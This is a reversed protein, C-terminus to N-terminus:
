KESEIIYIYGDTAMHVTGMIDTRYINIGRKQLRNIVIEDPFSYRNNEGLSIVADSPTVKDLYEASTSTSSGHHGIKLVDASIDVGSAIIEEESDVEADGSLVASVGKYSIKIVASYNNMKVYSRKRPSLVEISCPLDAIVSGQSVYECNCGNELLADLMGEFTKTNHTIEPMYFTGISFNNIIHEM